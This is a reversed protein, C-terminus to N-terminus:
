CEGGATLMRTQESGAGNLLLAEPRGNVIWEGVGIHAGFDVAAAGALVQVRKGLGDAIADEDIAPPPAALRVMYDAREALPFVM